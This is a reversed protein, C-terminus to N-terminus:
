ITQQAIINTWSILANKDTNCIRIAIKFVIWCIYVADPFHHLHSSFVRIKSNHHQAAVQQDIRIVTQAACCMLCFAPFSVQPTLKNRMQRRPSKKREGVSDTCKSRMIVFSTCGSFAFEIPQPAAEESMHKGRIMYHWRSIHM